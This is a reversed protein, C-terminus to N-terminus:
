SNCHPLRYAAHLIATDLTAWRDDNNNMRSALETLLIDLSEEPYKAIRARNSEILAGFIDQLKEVRDPSLHM